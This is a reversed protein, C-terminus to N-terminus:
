NDLHQDNHDNDRVLIPLEYRHLFTAGIVYLTKENNYGDHLTTRVIRQNSSGPRALSVTSPIGLKNALEKHGFGSAYSHMYSCGNVVLRNIAATKSM